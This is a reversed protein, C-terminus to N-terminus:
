SHFKSLFRNALYHGANKEADDSSMQNEVVHHNLTIMHRLMAQDKEIWYRFKGETIMAWLTPLENYIKPFEEQTPMRDRPHQFLKETEEQITMMREKTNDEKSLRNPYFDAEKLSDLQEQSLKTIRPTSM